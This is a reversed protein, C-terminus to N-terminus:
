QQSYKNYKYKKKKTLAKSNLLYAILMYAYFLVSARLVISVTNKYNNINKILCESNYNYEFIKINVM